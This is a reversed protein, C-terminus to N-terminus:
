KRVLVKRLFWAAYPSRFDPPGFTSGPCPDFQDLIDYGAEKFISELRNADLLWVPYSAPYITPPVRQVALRDRAFRHAMTRDIFVFPIDRSLFDSLVTYPQELYQLVSSLLLFNPQMAQICAEASKFFRLEETQFETQGAKVFNEQEVVGWRLMELHALFSKNQRYSSGLAGGVDMVKLRQGYNSAAYLLGALLPYPIQPKDFLVTDREFAAEGNVVARTAAIASDLILPSDYGKAHKIAEQWSSFDGDFTNQTAAERQLRAAPSERSVSIDIFIGALNLNNFLKM